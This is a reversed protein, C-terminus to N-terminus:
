GKIYIFRVIKGENTDVAWDWGDPNKDFWYRDDAAGYRPPYNDARYSGEPFESGRTMEPFKEKLILIESDVFSNRFAIDRCFLSVYSPQTPGVGIKWALYGIHSRPDTSFLAPFFVAYTIALFGIGLLIWKTIRHKM